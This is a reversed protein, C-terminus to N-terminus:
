NGLIVADAPMGPKLEHDPNELRVKVAFVTAVRSEKTQVNKPTFEARPSIYSVEGQYTKGPFADVSVRAPQGVGVRGIQDEPIYVALTVQDLDALTLLTAGPAAMEGAKVARNVVAVSVPARLTMKALQVELTKVAAEAQAVGAQAVRVQQPTAGAQVDALRAQALLLDAEAQALRAQAADVQANAALPNARMTLLLNLTAQAGDRTTQATNVQEWAAWWRNAVTGLPVRLPNDFKKDIKAGTPLTLHIEFYPDPNKEMFSELQTKQTELADKNAIAARLQQEAAALQARAADIRANLEQPNSRAALADQYAQRAGDRAATAQAVGVEAQRVEERMPGAQVQALRAHAAKVAARAQKIQAELLATDLQVLVDGARVADGEDVALRQIRGGVEAAITVMDAEITGSAEIENVALARRGPLQQAIQGLTGEQPNRTALWWYGGGFLVALVVILPVIKHRM